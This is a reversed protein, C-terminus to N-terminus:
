FGADKVEISRYSVFVWLIQQTGDSGHYLIRHLFNCTNQKEQSIIIRFVILKKTKM